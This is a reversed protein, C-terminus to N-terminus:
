SKGSAKLSLEERADERDQLFSSSSAPDGYWDHYAAASVARGDEQAESLDVWDASFVSAASEEDSVLEVVSVLEQLASVEADPEEESVTQEGDPHPVKGDPVQM